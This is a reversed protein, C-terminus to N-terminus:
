VLGIVQADATTTGTGIFLITTVTNAGSAVTTNGSITMGGSGNFAVTRSGTGDQTVQATVIEGLPANKIALVINGTLVGIKFHTSQSYDLTLTAAYAPTQVNPQVKTATLM